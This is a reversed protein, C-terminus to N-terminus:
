AIANRFANAFATSVRDLLEPTPSAVVRAADSGIGTGTDTENGPPTGPVSGNPANTENTENGEIPANGSGGADDPPGGPSSANTENTADTGNTGNGADAPPGTTEDNESGTGNGVDNANGADNGEGVDAPPGGEGNAIAVGSTSRAVSAIEPGTLNETETRLADLSEASVNTRKARNSTTDIAARLANIQGLLRSVKAKYAVETINGEERETVLERKRQQLESLETRLETTRREVLKTQVSRNETGNFAASWMGTEVAGDVEATSSQMFSSIDAGLTSNNATGNAAATPRADELPADGIPEPTAEVDDTAAVGVSTAGTPVAATLAGGVVFLALLVARYPTM